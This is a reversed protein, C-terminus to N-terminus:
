ALKGGRSSLLMSFGTALALMASIYYLQSPSALGASMIALPITVGVVHGIDEWVDMDVRDKGARKNLRTLCFVTGGGLGSIFWACLIVISNFTFLAMLILSMAVLIHGIIFYVKLREGRLLKEVSAYSIWGIAFALGVLQREINLYTLFVYPMIYAYSFYHTQHIVMIKAFTNIHPKHYKPLADTKDVQSLVVYWSIVLVTVIIIPYVAYSFFGCVAFGLIRVFRKLFTGVQRDRNVSQIFRRTKQLGISALVISLLFLFLSSSSFLALILSIFLCATVRRSSIAVIGALLNGLQYMLGALLAIPLGYERILFIVPGLEFLSSSTSLLLFLASLIQGESFVHSKKDIIM